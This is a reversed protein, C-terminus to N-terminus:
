QINSFAETNSVSTHTIPKWHVKAFLAAISIPVYTFMFIPFTFTYLIKKVTTTHIQKWETVTTILGVLYMMIYANRLSDMLSDILITVRIDLILGAVEAILNVCLCALTLFFAPMITMTMDYCSMCKGSFTNKLLKTGYKFWVQLFGKSWRLRQYWSQSFKTPQEDYLVAGAAFGIKYGKLVHDITFEIDETLLYYKWGGDKEIVGRSVCFGTGSIACSTGLLMRSNNLYKSERLFWLSYGASIWNDDYNKSNRYSTIIDYGDSFVKNMERIYNRELINDADFVMYADFPPSDYDEKIRKLLFDLAYGKGVQQKNFRSYVVAGAKEAIEATNDTCNDAVVFIKVLESPYNQKKISEILQGIVNSENRAAILVGYRHNFEKNKPKYKKIWPVILYILQYAYCIFFLIGLLYNLAGIIEMARAQNLVSATENGIRDSISLIETHATYKTVINNINTYIM